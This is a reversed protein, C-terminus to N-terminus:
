ARQVGDKTVIAYWLKEPPVPDFGLTIADRIVLEAREAEEENRAYLTCFPTDRTIHDGIRIPLVYGVSYDLRDSKRVRGAGMAQAALGLTQTDMAHVYGERQARIEKVVAAQPLLSLDDCVRPDGGQAAIM